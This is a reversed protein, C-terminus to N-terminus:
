SEQAVKLLGKATLQLLAAVDGLKMQQPDLALLQQVAQATQGDVLPPESPIVPEPDAIEMKLINGKEDRDVKYKHGDIDELTM